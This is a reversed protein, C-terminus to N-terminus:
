KTTLDKPIIYGSDDVSVYGVRKLAEFSREFNYLALGNSQGRPTRHYENVADWYQCATNGVIRLIRAQSPTMM